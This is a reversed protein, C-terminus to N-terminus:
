WIHRKRPCHQHSSNTLRSSKVQVAVVKAPVTPKRNSSSNSTHRHCQEDDNRNFNTACFNIVLTIAAMAAVTGASEDMLLMMTTMTKWIAIIGNKTKCRFRQHHQRRVSSLNATAVSLWHHVSREISRDHHFIRKVSRITHSFNLFINSLKFWLTLNDVWVYLWCLSVCSLSFYNDKSETDSNSKKKYGRKKADLRSILIMSNAIRILISFNWSWFWKKLDSCGSPFFMTTWQAKNCEDRDVCLFTDKQRQEAKIAVSNFNDCNYLFNSLLVALNHESCVWRWLM